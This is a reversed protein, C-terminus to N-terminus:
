GGGAALASGLMARARMHRTGYEVYRFYPSQVIVVTTGPDDYGPATRFSGALAGTRRPSAGSAAAAVAAARAAIDGSVAKRPAKPDTVTFVAGSV